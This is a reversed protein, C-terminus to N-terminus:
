LWGGFIDKKKYDGYERNPRGVRGQRPRPSPISPQPLRPDDFATPRFQMIKYSDSPKMGGKARQILRERLNEIANM